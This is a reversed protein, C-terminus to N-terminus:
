GLQRRRSGEGISSSQAPGSIARTAARTVWDRWRAAVSHASRHKAAVQAHVLRFSGAKAVAQTGVLRRRARGRAAEGLHALRDQAVGVAGEADFDKGLAAETRVGLHEGIQSLAREFEIQRPREEAPDRWGTSQRQEQRKGELSLM